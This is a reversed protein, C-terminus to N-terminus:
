LKIYINIYKYKYKFIKNELGNTVVNLVDFFYQQEKM